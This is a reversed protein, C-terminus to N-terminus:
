TLFSLNKPIFPQRATIFVTLLQVKLKNEINGNDLHGPRSFLFLCSLNIQFFSFCPPSGGGKKKNSPAVSLLSLFPFAFCIPLIITLSLKQQQWSSKIISLIM